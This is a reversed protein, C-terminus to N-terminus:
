TKPDLFLAIVYAAHSILSTINIYQKLSYIKHLVSNCETGQVCYVRVRINIWM